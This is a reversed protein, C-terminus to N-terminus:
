LKLLYYKKDISLFELTNEKEIKFFNEFTKM